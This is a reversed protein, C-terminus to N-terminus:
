INKGAVRVRILLAFIFQEQLLKRGKGYADIFPPPPLPPCILLQKGQLTPDLILISTLFSHPHQLYTM